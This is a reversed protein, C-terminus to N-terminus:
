SAVDNLRVTTYAKVDVWRRALSEDKEIVNTIHERSLDYMFKFREATFEIARNLWGSSFQTLVCYVAAVATCYLNDLHKVYRLYNLKRVVGIVVDLIADHEFAMWQNTNKDKKFIFKLPWTADNILDNIKVQKLKSEVTNSWLSPRLDYARDIVILAIEKCAAMILKSPASLQMYLSGANKAAWHQGFDRIIKKASEVSDFQLDYAKDLCDKVAKALAVQVLGERESRKIMACVNVADWILLQMAALVFDEHLKLNERYELPPFNIHPMSETDTTAPDSPMTPPELLSPAKLMKRRPGPYEIFRWDGDRKESTQGGLSIPPPALITLHQVDDPAGPPLSSIGDMSIVPAAFNRRYDAFAPPQLRLALDSPRLDQSPVMVSQLLSGDYDNLIPPPASMQAASAVGSHPNPLLSPLWNASIPAQMAGPYSGSPVPQPPMNSLTSQPTYILHSRSLSPDPPIPVPLNGRYDGLISQPTNMSRSHNSPIPLNQPANGQYDDFTTQPTNHM